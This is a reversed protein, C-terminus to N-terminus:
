YGFTSYDLLYNLTKLNIDHLMQSVMVLCTGFLCVQGTIQMITSWLLKWFWIM